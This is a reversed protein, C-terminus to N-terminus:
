HLVLTQIKNEDVTATDGDVATTKDSTKLTFSVVGGNSTLNSATYMVNRSTQNQLYAKLDEKGIGPTSAINFVVQDDVLALAADLNKANVAQFFALLVDTDAISVTAPATSVDPTASSTSNSDAAASTAKWTAKADIAGCSETPGKVQLTGSAQTNSAFTGTFTFQKGDSDTLQITFTNGNILANDPTTSYSGSVSCGGAQVSYSLNVSTIQNGSVGFSVSTDSSTTGEWQGYYGTATSQGSSTAPKTPIPASTPSAGNASVAALANAPAAIAINGDQEFIHFSMEIKGTKAPTTQDHAQVSANLAHLYGDDCIWM